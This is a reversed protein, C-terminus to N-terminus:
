FSKWIYGNIGHVIKGIVETVEM